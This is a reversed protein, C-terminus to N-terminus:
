MPKKAEFMKSTNSKSEKEQFFSFLLSFELSLGIGGPPQTLGV